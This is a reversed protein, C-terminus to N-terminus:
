LPRGQRRLAQIVSQMWERESFVACGGGMKCEAAQEPKLLLYEGSVSEVISFKLFFATAALAVIVNLILLVLAAVKM